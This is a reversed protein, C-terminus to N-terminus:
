EEHETTNYTYSSVIGKRDFRIVLDETSTDGFLRYHYTGYTWTRQGDEIGVRWPSGFMDKINGQTTKNLQINSVEATPFEYGITACGTLVSTLLVTMLLVNRNM